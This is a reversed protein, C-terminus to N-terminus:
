RARMGSITNVVGSYWRPRLQIDWEVLRANLERPEFRALDYRMLQIAGGMWMVSNGGDQFVAFTRTGVAQAILPIALGTWWLIKLKRRM